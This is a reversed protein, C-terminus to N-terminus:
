KMCASIAVCGRDMRHWYVFCYGGYTSNWVDGFVVWAIPLFSVLISSYIMAHCVVICLFVSSLHSLQNNVWFKVLRPDDVWLENHMPLYGLLSKFAFWCNYSLIMIRNILDFGALQPCSTRRSGLWRREGLRILWRPRWWQSFVRLWGSAMRGEGIDHGSTIVAM